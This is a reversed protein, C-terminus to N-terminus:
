AISKAENFALAFLNHLSEEINHLDLEFALEFEHGLIDIITKAYFMKGQKIEQLSAAM